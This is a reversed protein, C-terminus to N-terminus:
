RVELVRWKWIVFVQLDDILVMGATVISKRFEEQNILCANQHGHCIRLVSDECVASM